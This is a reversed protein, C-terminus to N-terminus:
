ATGKMQGTPAEQPYENAAYLDVGVGVRGLRRAVNVTTGSGVFPDLVVDGPRTSLCIARLPIDEPFPAEHGTRRTDPPFCWVNGREWMKGVGDFVHSNWRHDRSKALMLITESSVGTRKAHELSEPRVNERGKQTTKFWTIWQRVLWGQQQLVIAVRQPIMCWTMPPLGSAGQKWKERGAKSGDTWDGGAGGSGSASDGIVIWCTGADDLVDWMERGVLRMDALYTNLSDRGVERGDEGYKRLGFYPPSTVVCQVSGNPIFPLARADGKYIGPIMRKEVHRSPRPIAWQLLQRWHPLEVNLRGSM